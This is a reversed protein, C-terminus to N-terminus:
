ERGDLAFNALGDGGVYFREFPVLGRDSNYAGMYGFEGLTRLVLKDYIRTYWDGRFKVKYYELWNFRKQDIKSQDAAADQFNTVKRPNPNQQTPVAELYDGPQVIVTVGNEIYSYPDGKYTYKYEELNQLNGYDVGNFLSYPPTLRASVSFESGYTPYIPNV